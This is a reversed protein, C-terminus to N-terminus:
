VESLIILEAIYLKGHTMKGSGQSQQMMNKLTADKLYTEFAVPGNTDGGYPGDENNESVLIYFKQGIEVQPADIAAMVDKMSYEKAGLEHIKGILGRFAANIREQKTKIM